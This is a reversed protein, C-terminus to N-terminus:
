YYIEWCIIMHEPNLCIVVLRFLSMSHEESLMDQMVVIFSQLHDAHKNYLNVFHRQSIRVFEAQRSVVASCCHRDIDLEGFLSGASLSCLPLSESGTPKSETTLGCKAARTKM